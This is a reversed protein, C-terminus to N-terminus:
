DEFLDLGTELKYRALYVLRQENPLKMIMEISKLEDFDLEDVQIHRNLVFTKKRSAVGSDPHGIISDIAVGSEICVNENKDGVHKDSKTPVKKLELELKNPTASEGDIMEEQISPSDARFQEVYEHWYRKECDVDKKHYRYCNTCIKAIGKHWLRIKLGYMPLM